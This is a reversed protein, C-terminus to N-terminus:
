FTFSDTGGAARYLAEQVRERMDDQRSKFQPKEIAMAQDAAPAPCIVGDKDIWFIDALCDLGDMPEKNGNPNFRAAENPIEGTPLKTNPEWDIVQPPVTPAFLLNGETIPQNLSCIRDEKRGQQPRSIPRCLPIELGANQFREEIWDRYMKGPGSTEMTFHYIPQWREWMNQFEALFIDSTMHEIRMDLVYSKGNAYKAVVAMAAKSMGRQGGENNAPDTVMYLICSSRDLNAPSLPQLDTKPPEDRIFDKLRFSSKRNSRRVEYAGIYEHESMVKYQRALFEDTIWPYNQEGKCSFIVKGRQDIAEGKAPVYRVIAEKGTMDAVKDYLHYVGPWPTGIIWIMTNSGAAQLVDGWTSLVQEQLQLSRSNKRDVMDDLAFLSPHIGTVISSGPSFITVSPDSQNCGEVRIEFKSFERTSFVGFRKVVSPSILARRIWASREGARAKSQAGYGVTFERNAVILRTVESLMVISKGSYRPEMDMFIFSGTKRMIDWSRRFFEIRRLYASGPRMDVWAVPLGKDDYLRSPPSTRLNLCERYWLSVDDLYRRRKDAEETGQKASSRLLEAIGM